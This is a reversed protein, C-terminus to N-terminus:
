EESVTRIKKFFYYYMWVAAAAIAARGFWVPCFYFSAGMMVTALALIRLKAGRTMARHKLFPALHKQYLGTGTFWREFRLSGRTYCYATLLLFPTTPLVPLVTGLAGLALFLSGATLYFLKMRHEGKPFISEKKFLELFSNKYNFFM